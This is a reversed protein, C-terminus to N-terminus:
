RKGGGGQVLQVVRVKEEVNNIHGVWGEFLLHISHLVEYLLEAQAENGHYTTKM